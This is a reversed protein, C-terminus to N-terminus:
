SVLYHSFKKRLVLGFDTYIALGITICFWRNKPPPMEPCLKVPHMKIRLVLMFVNPHRTVCSKSTELHNVEQLIYDSLSGALINENQWCNIFNAVFGPQWICWSLSLPTFNAFKQISSLSSIHFITIFNFVLDHSSSTMRVVYILFFLSCNTPTSVLITFM